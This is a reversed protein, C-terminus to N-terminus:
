TWVQKISSQPAGNKRIYNALDLAALRLVSNDSAEVGMSDDAYGAAPHGYTSPIIVGIGIDDGFRIDGVDDEVLDQQDFESMARRRSTLATYGDTPAAGFQHRDPSRLRLVIRTRRRSRCVLDRLVYLMTLYVITKSAVESTDQPPPGGAGSGLLHTYSVPKSPTRARSGRARARFPSGSSAAARGARCPRLHTYSVPAPEAGLVFDKAPNKEIFQKIAAAIAAARANGGKRSEEGIRYVTAQANQDGARTRRVLSAAQDVLATNM